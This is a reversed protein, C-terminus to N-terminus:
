RGRRAEARAKENADHEAQRRANIMAWVYAKVYLPCERLQSWGWHMEHMIEFDVFEEPPAGSGWTGEYISEAPAVM